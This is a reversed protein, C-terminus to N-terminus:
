KNLKRLKRGYFVSLILFLAAMTFSFKYQESDRDLLIFSNATFLIFAFVNLAVAAKLM